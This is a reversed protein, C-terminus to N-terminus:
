GVSVLGSSRSIRGTQLPRIGKEQMAFVQPAILTTGDILGELLAAIRADEGGIHVFDVERPDIGLQRLHYRVMFADQGNSVTVGMKGGRLMEPSTVRDEVVLAHIPRVTLAFVGVLPLGRLQAATTAGGIAAYFDAERKDLAAPVTGPAMRVYDLELGEAAFFGQEAAIQFPLWPGYVNSPYGIVVKKLPAGAAGPAPGAPAQAVGRAAPGAPASPAPQGTSSATDLAPACAALALFVAALALVASHYNM